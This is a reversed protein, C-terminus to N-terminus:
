GEQTGVKIKRGPTLAEKDLDNNLRQLDEVTTGPYREAITILTDGPQVEYYIFEVSPKETKAQATVPRNVHGVKLRQGTQILTGHLGNLRKLETVSLRYKQAIVGLSEGRRVTHYRPVSTTM